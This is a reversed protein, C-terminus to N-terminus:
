ELHNLLSLLDTSNVVYVNDIMKTQDIESLNAQTFCLIPQVFRVQKMEKIAKAQGKVAKLINKGNSFEHIERGHRLMLVSGNYFVGGRNSKTDIVFCNGKPSRLFIDADGWRKLPINYEIQWRRFELPQLLQAVTEEGEAGQDAFKAKLQLHQGKRFLVFAGVWGSIVVLVKIEIPLPLILPVIALGGAISFRQYAQVRRNHALQRVNEGAKPVAKLVEGTIEIM